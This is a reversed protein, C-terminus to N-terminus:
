KGKREKNKKGEIDCGWIDVGRRKNKGGSRRNIGGQGKRRHSHWPLGNKKGRVEKPECIGDQLVPIM